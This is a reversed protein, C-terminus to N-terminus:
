HRRSPSVSECWKRWMFRYGGEIERALLRGNTLHKSVLPRLGRRMSSLRDLDGALGVATRIYEEVTHAALTPFGVRELLAQGVRGAHTSGRLNVVPVGMWLCDCTTTQGNYPFSDLAIDVKAILELHQRSPRPGRFLLRAPDIDRSRLHGAFRERQASGAEDLDKSEFHILLRSGPVKNLISAVTDWTGAHYKGPRQFMGFTVYGNSRAPVDNVLPAKAGPQYVLYGSALRYINEAYEQECGAPTTWLDTFIYDIETLGTTGPYNPFSAQVPAPHELFVSLRNSEFSGSLDVLIDIRDQRIQEVLARDDMSEVDRWHDASLKYRCTHLDRRPRSMYYVSEILKRDQCKLWSILFGFAPSKVFEGSLYGIRLRRDPDPVNMHPRRASPRLASTLVANRHDERLSAASQKPDHLALWNLNSLLDRDTPTFLLAQEREEVAQELIGCDLYALALSARTVFSHPNVRVAAVTLELARDKHLQRHRISALLLLSADSDPNRAICQEALRGADALRGEEALCHAVGRLFATREPAHRLCSEFLPRAEAFRGMRLLADAKGHLATLNEPEERLCATFAEVAGDWSGGQYRLVGLDCWLDPGAQQLTAAHELTQLAASSNGQAWLGIAMARFAEHCLPDLVLIQECLRVAGAWKKMRLYKWALEIPLADQEATTLPM